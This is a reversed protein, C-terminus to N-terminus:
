LSRLVDINAKTLMECERLYRVRDAEWRRQAQMLPHKAIAANIEETKEPEIGGLLDRTSDKWLTRDITNRVCSAATVAYDVSHTQCSRIACEIASVADVVDRNLRLGGQDDPSFSSCLKLADVLDRESVPSGQVHAWLRELQAHFPDDLRHLAAYAKLIPYTKEACCLAFAIHCPQQLDVLTQRLQALDPALRYFLEYSPNPFASDNM